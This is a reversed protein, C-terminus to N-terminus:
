KRLWWLLWVPVAWPLLVLVFGAIALGLMVDRVARALVHCVRRLQDMFEARASM